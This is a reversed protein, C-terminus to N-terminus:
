STKFSESAEVKDLKGENELSALSLLEVVWLHVKLLQFVRTSKKEFADPVVLIRRLQVSLVQAELQVEDLLQVLLFLFNAGALGSFTLVLDSVAFDCFNDQLLGELVDGIVRPEFGLEHGDHKM